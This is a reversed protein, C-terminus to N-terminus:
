HSFLTKSQLAEAIELTGFTVGASRLLSLTLSRFTSHISKRKVSSFYFECAIFRVTQELRVHDPILMLWYHSINAFKLNINGINIYM